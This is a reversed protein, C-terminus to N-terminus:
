ADGDIVWVLAGSRVCVPKRSPATSEFGAMEVRPDAATATSAFGAMEVVAEVGPLFLSLLQNEASISAPRVLPRDSFRM